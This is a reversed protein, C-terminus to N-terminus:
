IGFSIRVLTDLSPADPVDDSPHLRQRTQKKVPNEDAFPRKMPQPVGHPVNDRGLARLQEFRDRTDQYAAIFLGVHIKGYAPLKDHAADILPSLYLTQSKRHRVGIREFDGCYFVIISTDERM